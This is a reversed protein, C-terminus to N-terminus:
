YDEFFITSVEIHVYYLLYFEQVAIVKLVLLYYIYSVYYVVLMPFLDLILHKKQPTWTELCSPWVFLFFITQVDWIGLSHVNLILFPIELNFFLVHISCYQRDVWNICHMTLLLETCYFHFIYKQRFIHGSYSRIYPSSPFKILQSIGFM